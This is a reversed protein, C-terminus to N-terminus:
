AELNVALSPERLFRVAMFLACLAMGVAVGFLPRYGLTQVITGAIFPAILAVVATVTNALGVYIPRQEPNAYGVVWNLYSFLLNSTALGSILFGFYLPLPGVIGALLASIPLLAAASLAVRIYLLNNRAGLWAYVLAGTVTGVTQMALLVPVAVESSLGLRVTAYGIYFPAAMLFLSTFMRIIIFARFPVDERLVRGLAPLFEGLSPIKEVAKGGPLEHFFLGPLISLAFIAGSVGFLIAYNNPFGPGADSLVIGILPAILLMIVGTGANTFGFMRARWRNDLSTGALDAWPVGVLGDGFAAISYCIFFALLILHPQEGGLWVLIGAFILIVFRAPINPGVFWWKKREYRVIYRAVFLQPLTFGISFLNSLLGILIESDTLRRVFDPIVTTGGIIGIAVTFLISDTLFFFFNRRYIKERSM